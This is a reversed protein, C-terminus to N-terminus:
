DTPEPAPCGTLSTAAVLDNCSSKTWQPDGGYSDFANTTYVTVEDSGATVVAFQVIPDGETTPFSWALEADDDAAQAAILCEVADAPVVEGQGLVFAGCSTEPDGDRVADPADPLAAAAVIPDGSPARPIPYSQACGALPAVLVVLALMGSLRQATHAGRQHRMADVYRAATIPRFSVGSM